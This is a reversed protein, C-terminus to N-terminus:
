ELGKWMTPDNKLAEIREERKKRRYANLMRKVVRDRKKEENFLVYPDTRTTKKDM